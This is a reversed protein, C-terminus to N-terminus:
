QLFSFNSYHFLPIIPQDIKKNEGGVNWYEMMGNDLLCYKLSTRYILLLTIWVSFAGFAIPGYEWAM